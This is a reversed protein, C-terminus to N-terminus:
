SSVLTVIQELCDFFPKRELCSRCSFSMGDCDLPSGGAGPSPSPTAVSEIPAPTVAAIPAPTAVPSSTVGDAPAITPAAGVPSSTVGDVPAITPADTLPEWFNTQVILVEAENNQLYACMLFSRM